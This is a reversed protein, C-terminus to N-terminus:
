ESVLAQAVDEYLRSSIRAERLKDQGLLHPARLREDCFVLIAFTPEVNDLEDLDKLGHAGLRFFNECTEYSRLESSRRIPVGLREAQRDAGQSTTRGSTHSQAMSSSKLIGLFRWLASSITALNRCTSTNTQVVAGFFLGM